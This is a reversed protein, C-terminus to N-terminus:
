DHDGSDGRNPDVAKKARELFAQLRAKPAAEDLADYAAKTASDPDLADSPRVQASTPHYPTEVPRNENSM